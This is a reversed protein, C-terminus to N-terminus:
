PCACFTRVSRMRSCRSARSLNSAITVGVEGVTAKGIPSLAASGSAIYAQSRSVIGDQRAPNGPSEIGHPSESPRGTPSCSIPPCSPSFPRKRSPCTSTSAVPHSVTVSRNVPGPLRDSSELDVHLQLRPRLHEAAARDSEPRPLVRLRTGHAEAEGARQGHHIAARDLPGDLEPEREVALDGLVRDEGAL